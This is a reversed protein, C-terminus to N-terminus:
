SRRICLIYYIRVVSACINDLASGCFINKDNEFIYRVIIIISIDSIFYLANDTPPLAGFM